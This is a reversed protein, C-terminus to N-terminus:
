LNLETWTRLFMAEVVEMPMNLHPAGVIIPPFPRSEPLQWDKGQSPMLVKAEQRVAHTDAEKVLQHDAKLMDIGLAIAICETWHEETTRYSDFMPASKLPTTIDHLYAEPADHMLALKLTEVCDTQTKVLAYVFLSHLGVSYFRRCHGAFRCQMSLSHAIDEVHIDSLYPAVPHVMAGTFTEMKM